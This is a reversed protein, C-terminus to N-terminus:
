GLSLNEDMRAEVESDDTMQHCNTRTKPAIRYQVTLLAGVSLRPPNRATMLRKSRRKGSQEEVSDSPASSASVTRKRKGPVDASPVTTPPVGNTGSSRQNHTVMYEIKTRKFKRTKQSRRNLSPITALGRERFDFWTGHLWSLNVCSSATIAIESLLARVSRDTSIPSPAYDFNITQHRYRGLARLVFRPHATSRIRPMNRYPYKYCRGSVHVPLRDPTCVPMLEYDYVDEPLVDTFVDTSTSLDHNYEYLDQIKHLIDTPPLLAWSSTKMLEVMDAHITRSTSM